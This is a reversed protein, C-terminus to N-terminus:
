KCQQGTDRMIKFKKLRNIIQDLLQKMSVIISQVKEEIKTVMEDNHYFQHNHHKKTTSCSRCVLIGCTNCYIGLISIAQCSCWVLLTVPKQHKMIM